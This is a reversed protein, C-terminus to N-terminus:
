LESLPTARASTDTSRMSVILRGLHRHLADLNSAPLDSLAQQLVGILPRPAKKLVTLGKTTAYLRVMRQDEGQRRRALLGSRELDRILNSATSQHVALGRALEGVKVGPWNAVQALAWLQAGGIGARSQVSKYHRQVSKFVIRFLELVELMKKHKADSRNRSTRTM